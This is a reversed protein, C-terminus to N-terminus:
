AYGPYGPLICVICVPTAMVQPRPVKLDFLKKIEIIWHMSLQLLTTISLIFWWTCVEGMSKGVHRTGATGAPSPPAPPSGLFPSIWTGGYRRQLVGWPAGGTPGGSKGARVHGTHTARATPPNATSTHAGTPSTPPPLTQPCKPMIQFSKAHTVGSRCQQFRHLKCFNARRWLLAM